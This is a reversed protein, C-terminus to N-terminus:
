RLDQEEQETVARVNVSRTAIRSLKKDTDEEESLTQQLLTAARTYGLMEAYTRLTGYAAIEYHEVKQTCAILAADRVSRDSDESMVEEGEELLGKMGACTKGKAPKGIHEFVQNLREIQGKTQTLHEQFAARLEPTSAAEALKPLARTIQGEANYIDELEDLFLDELTRLKM